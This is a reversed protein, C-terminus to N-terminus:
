PALYLRKMDDHCKRCAFWLSHVKPNSTDTIDWLMEAVNAKIFRGEHRESQCLHPEAEILAWTNWTLDASTIMSYGTWYSPTPGDNV